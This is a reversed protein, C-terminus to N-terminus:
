WIRIYYRVIFFGLYGRLLLFYSCVMSVKFKERCFGLGRVVLCGVLMWFRFGCSIYSRFKFDRLM